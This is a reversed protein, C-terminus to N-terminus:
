FSINLNSIYYLCMDFTADKIQTEVVEREAKITEIEEMMKKISVNSNSIYRVFVSSLCYRVPIFKYRLTNNIM